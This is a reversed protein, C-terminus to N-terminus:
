RYRLFVSGGYAHWKIQGRRSEDGLLYLVYEFRSLGSARRPRAFRDGRRKLRMHTDENRSLVLSQETEHRLGARVPVTSLARESIIDCYRPEFDRLESSADVGLADCSSSSAVRLETSGLEM